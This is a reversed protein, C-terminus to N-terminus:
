PLFRRLLRDLAAADQWVLRVPVARVRQRWQPSLRVWDKETTVLTANAADAEAALAALEKDLYIHHDPFGRAAVIGLGMRALTRFFKAPRGIGAFALVRHGRLTATEVPELAADLCPLDPPMSVLRGGGNLMVVAQARALGHAVPERLPGAPLVRANGFGYDGDVVVLSLDKSLRPNQFGDDLILLSAGAACAAQAGAVRDRAVWTPAVAALLLAEDGTEAATHHAPDVAVPRRLTGGYGRTLFHPYQGRALFHQALSLAVPTKGTGGVTLNGVCIVPVPARWPRTWAQRAAGASAYVWALPQLLRAEWGNRTWFEPTSPPMM